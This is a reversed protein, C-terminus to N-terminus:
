LLCLCISKGHKCIPFRTLNAISEQNIQLHLIIGILIRALKKEKKASNPLTVRFNVPFYIALICVFCQFLVLFPFLCKWIEFSVVFSCYDLSHPAPILVSMYTLPVFRLTQFQFRLKHDIVNQCPHQAQEIPFSYDKWCINSPSSSTQMCFIIFSFVKRVGFVFMLGFHFWHLCIVFALQLYAEHDSFFFFFERLM